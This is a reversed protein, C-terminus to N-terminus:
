VLQLKVVKGDIEITKILFDVGITPMWAEAFADDQMHYACLSVYLVKSVVFRRFLCSKGCGPQTPSHAVFVM